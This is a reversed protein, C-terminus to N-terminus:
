QLLLLQLLLLLQQQQQQQQQQQAELLDVSLSKKWNHEGWRQFKRGPKDPYCGHMFDDMHIWLPFVFVDDIWQRWVGISQSEFEFIFTCVSIWHMRILCCQTPCYWAIDLQNCCSEGDNFWKGHERWTSGPRSRRPQHRWPQLGFILHQQRRLNMCPM